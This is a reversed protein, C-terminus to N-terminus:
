CKREILKKRKSRSETGFQINKLIRRSSVTSKKHKRLNTLVLRLKPSIKATWVTLPLTLTTRTPRFPILHSLYSKTANLPKIKAWDTGQFDSQHKSSLLNLLSLCQLRFWGRKLSIQKGLVELVKQWIPQPLLLQYYSTQHPSFILIKSIRIRRGTLTLNCESLALSLLM